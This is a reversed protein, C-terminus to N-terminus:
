PARMFSACSAPALFDLAIRLMWSTRSTRCSTSKAMLFVPVTLGKGRTTVGFVDFALEGLAIGKQLMIDRIEIEIIEILNKRPFADIDISARAHRCCKLEGLGACAPSERQPCITRRLGGQRSRLYGFPVIRWRLVHNMGTISVGHRHVVTARGARGVGWWMHLAGRWWVGKARVNKRSELMDRRM